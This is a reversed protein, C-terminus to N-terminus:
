FKEEKFAKNSSLNKDGYVNEVLSKEQRSKAARALAAIFLRAEM